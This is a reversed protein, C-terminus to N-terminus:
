FWRRRELKERRREPHLEERPGKWSVLGDQGDAMKGVVVDFDFLGGFEGICFSGRVKVGGQQAKARESLFPGMFDAIRRAIRSPEYKEALEKAWGILSDSSSAPAVLATSSPNRSNLWYSIIEEDRHDGEYLTQLWFSLVITHLRHFHRLPALMPATIPTPDWLVPAGRYGCFKLHTITSAHYAAITHLLPPSPPWGYEAEFRQNPNPPTPKLAGLRTIVDIDETELSGFDNADNPDENIGLSGIDRGCFGWTNGIPCNVGILVVKSLPCSGLARLLERKEDRPIGGEVKIVEVKQMRAAFRSIFLRRSNRM